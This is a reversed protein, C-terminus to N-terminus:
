SPASKRKRIRRRVSILVAICLAADSLDAFRGRSNIQCGGHSHGSGGAGADRSISSDPNGQSGGTGSGVICKGALCTRGPGCLELDTGNDVIGDCDDDFMNCTEAIPPGPTCVTTCGIAYRACWGVGCTARAGEDIRGDCNNDVGDCVEVAGPHIKPDNDRCDGGCDGFGASPACGSKTAAGPVGHGDGDNDQCYITTVVNEDIKGNCDNDKGDCLEPAGPYITPDYDACDGSV